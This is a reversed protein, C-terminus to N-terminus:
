ERTLGGADVGDEGVFQVRLKGHMESPTRVKLQHYSDMFVESRRVQLRISDFNRDPRLKRMESRFYTRKNEFDLLAPFETVLTHFTDQLLTSNQKVLINLVKRNKDCFKSFNDSYSSGVHSLFFTEIIPLLKSLTPNATSAFDSDRQTINNLAETLPGWLYELGNTEHSICKFVKFVRLLQLEKLGDVSTELRILNRAIEQGLM